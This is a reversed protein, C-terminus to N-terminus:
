LSTNEAGEDFRRGQYVLFETAELEYRGWRGNFQPMTKFFKTGATLAGSFANVVASTEGFVANGSTAAAVIKGSGAVLSILYAGKEMRTSSDANTWYKKWWQNNKIDLMNLKVPATSLAGFSGLGLAIYSLIDSVHRATASGTLVGATKASVAAVSPVSSAAKLAPAIIQEGFKVMTSALTSEAELAGHGINVMLTKLNEAINGTGGIFQAGWGLMASVKPDSQLMAESGIGMVGSAMNAVNVAMGTMSATELAAVVSGSAAISAGATFVTLGIALVSAGINFWSQWSMHGTPDAHNIPDNVCYAYGNIGGMGFPSITDPGMFRMLVPNYARYGNGLHTSECFPDQREGNFGSIETDM